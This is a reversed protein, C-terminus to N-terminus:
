RWHRLSLHPHKGGVTADTSWDCFRKDLEDLFQHNLNAISSVELFIARVQEKTISINKKSWDFSAIV